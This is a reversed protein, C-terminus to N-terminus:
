DVLQVNVGQVRVDLNLVGDLVVFLLNNLLSVLEKSVDCSESHKNGYVSRLIGEFLGESQDDLVLVLVALIVNTPGRVAGFDLDMEDNLWGVEVM